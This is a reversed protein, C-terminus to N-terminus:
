GMVMILMPIFIVNFEAICSLWTAKKNWRWVPPWKFVYLRLVIITASCGLAIITAASAEAISPNTPVYALFAVFAAAYFAVVAAIFAAFADFFVDALATILIAIFAAFAGTVLANKTICLAIFFTTLTLIALYVQWKGLTKWWIYVLKTKPISQKQAETKMM